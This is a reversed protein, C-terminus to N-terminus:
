KLRNNRVYSLESIKSFDKQGNEPLYILAYRPGMKRSDTAIAVLELYLSCYIQLLDKDVISVIFSLSVMRM